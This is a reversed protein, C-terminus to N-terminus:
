STSASFLGSFSSFSLFSGLLLELIWGTVPYLSVSFIHSFTQFKSFCSIGGLLNGFQLDSNLMWTLSCLCNLNFFFGNNLSIYFYNNPGIVSNLSFTVMSEGLSPFIEVSHNIYLNILIFNLM